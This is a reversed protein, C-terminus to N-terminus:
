DKPYINPNYSDVIFVNDDKLFDREYGNGQILM